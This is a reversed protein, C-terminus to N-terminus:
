ESRRFQSHELLCANAHVILARLYRVHSSRVFGSMFALGTTIWDPVTRASTRDRSKAPWTRIRASWIEHLHRDTMIYAHCMPSRLAIRLEGLPRLPPASFDILFVANFIPMYFRPHRTNAFVAPESSIQCNPLRVSLYGYFLAYAVREKQSPPTSDIISQLANETNGFAQDDDFDAPITTRPELPVSM